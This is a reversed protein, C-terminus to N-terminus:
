KRQVTFAGTATAVLDDSTTAPDPSLAVDPATPLGNVTLALADTSSLGDTDTVTLTVTHAGRTLADTVFGAGGASAAGTTSLVGDVDSEWSLTLDGPADEGDAVTASFTVPAGEDVM